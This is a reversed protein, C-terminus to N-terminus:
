EPLKIPRYLSNQNYDKAICRLFIIDLGLIYKEDIIRNGEEDEHNTVYCSKDCLRECSGCIGFEKKDDTNVGVIDPKEAGNRDM